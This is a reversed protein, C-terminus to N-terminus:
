VGAMLTRFLRVVSKSESADNPSEENMMRDILYLARRRRERVQELLSEMTQYSFQQVFPPPLYRHLPFEILGDLGATTDSWELNGTPAELLRLLNLRASPAVSFDKISDEPYDDTAMVGSALFGQHMAIQSEALATEDVLPGRFFLTLRELQIRDWIGKQIGVALRETMKSWATLRQREQYTNFPAVYSPAFLTEFCDVIELCQAADGRDIAAEAMLSLFGSVGTVLGYGFSVRDLQQSSDASALSFDLRKLLEFLPEAEAAYRQLFPRLLELETENRDRREFSSVTERYKDDLAGLASVIQRCRATNSEDESRRDAQDSVLTASLRTELQKQALRWQLSAGALLLILGAIPATVAALVMRETGSAKMSARTAM